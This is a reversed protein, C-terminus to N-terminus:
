GGNAKKLVSYLAPGLMGKFTRSRLARDLDEILDRTSELGISARILGDGVWERIRQKHEATYYPAADVYLDYPYYFLLSTPHGLSTAYTFVKVKEALTIAAGLGGKLRFGIMGGFAKMQQSAIAHQPHSELGPYIVREVKPHAELFRAIDMASECHKAIRMPLTEMGRLILWANFPSLAGGLHVLMEKRLRQIGERPGIVAGGLADGHGNLYKTLSHVVYDAGLAIPSQLAPSAFTSDVVLLAGAQHAIEALARIDGIRLIPNSPTELYVLKTNTRLAAQVAVLDSTDVLSVEIGFRPLHNGLLEVAGAYCVESAVVHDGASLFGFMVASIAAMGSAFTVASEAKELLALRTELARLTPNSWRTYVHDVRENEMQLAEFLRIGFGPLKYTAAMHLPLRVAGTEPDAQTGGHISITEIDM